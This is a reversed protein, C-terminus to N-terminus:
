FENLEVSQFTEAPLRNFKEERDSSMFCFLDGRNGFLWNINLGFNRRLMVMEAIEPFILGDEFSKFRRVSIGAKAAFGAFTIGTKKMISERFVRLRGGIKARLKEDNGLFSM